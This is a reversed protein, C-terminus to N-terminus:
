GVGGPPPPTCTSRACSGSTAARARPRTASDRKGLEAALAAGPPAWTKCGHVVVEGRHDTSWTSNEVTKGAFILNAWPRGISPVRGEGSLVRRAADSNRLDAARGARNREARVERSVGSATATPSTTSWRTRRDGVLT